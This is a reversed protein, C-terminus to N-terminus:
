PSPHNPHGVLSYLAFRFDGGLSNSNPHMAEIVVWSQLHNPYLPKPELFPNGVLSYLAFRFDGGLSNANPHMAEIVVWSQLHNPTLTLPILPM